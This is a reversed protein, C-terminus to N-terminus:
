RWNLRRLLASKFDIAPLAGEPLVFGANVVYPWLKSLFPLLIALLEVEL